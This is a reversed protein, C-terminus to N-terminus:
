YPLQIMKQLLNRDHTAAVSPCHCQSCENMDSCLNTVNFFYMCFAFSIHLTGILRDCFLIPPRLFLCSDSFSLTTLSFDCPLSSVRSTTPNETNIAFKSMITITFDTFMQYIFFNCALLHVTECSTCRAMMRCFCFFEGIDRSHCSIGTTLQQLM